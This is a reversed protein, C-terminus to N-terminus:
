IVKAFLGANYIQEDKMYANQLFGEQVFGNNLLLKESSSNGELVSAQVRILNLDEFAIKLVQQLADTMYGKGWYAEGLWYGISAKYYRASTGENKMLHLGIGGIHTGNNEIAYPFETQYMKKTTEIREKAVDETYPYPMFILWKHVNDNKLMEILSPIHRENYKVLEVM